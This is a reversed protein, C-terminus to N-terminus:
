REVVVRAALTGFNGRVSAAYVGPMLGTTSVSFDRAKGNQSLVPKGDISFLTVSYAQESPLTVSFSSVNNRLIAGNRVTNRPPLLGVSSATSDWHYVRVYDVYATDPFQTSSNINGDFNGGVALNLIFYFSRDFPLTTNSQKKTITTYCASDCYWRISDTSWEAAYIHYSDHITGSPLTYGTSADYNTYHYSGCVWSPLRGKAEMIDLEGCSPWGGSTGLMWFAPWMGQGIPLKMRAEMRGYMFTQKNSSVIKGSTIDSANKTVLLLNGNKVFVNSSAQDHGSTYREQEANVAGANASQVTWNAENLATSDFEDSWFVKWAGKAHTSVSTFFVLTAVRLFFARTRQAKLM